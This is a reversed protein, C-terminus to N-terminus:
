STSGPVQMSGLSRRPPKAPIADGKQKFNYIGAGGILYPRVQNEESTRFNYVVNGTGYILQFKVDDPTDDSFQSYSGDLQLGVPAGEPMFSVAALGHFGLKANKNFDGLPTDIGGGLSFGASQADATSANVLLSLALAAAVKMGM